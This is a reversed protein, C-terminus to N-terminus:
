VASIDDAADSTYLLTLLDLYALLKDGCDLNIHLKDLGACLLTHLPHQSNRMSNNDRLEHAKRM